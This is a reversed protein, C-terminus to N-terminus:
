KKEALAEYYRRIQVEYEPLFRDSLSRFLAEQERAPLHGWVSNARGGPTLVGSGPMTPGAVNETSEASNEDDARRSGGSNSDSAGAQSSKESSPDSSDSPQPKPKKSSSSKGGQPQSAAELLEQLRDVALQQSEVAAPTPHGGDLELVAQDMAALASDLLKEAESVTESVEDAVPVLPLETPQDAPMEPEDVPAEPEAAPTTGELSPIAEAAVLPAVEPVTSPTPDAAIVGSGIVCGIVLCLMWLVPQSVTARMRQLVASCLDVFGTDRAPMM